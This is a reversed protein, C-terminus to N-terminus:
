NGSLPRNTYGRNLSTVSQFIRPLLLGSQRSNYCEATPAIQPALFDAPQFMLSHSCGRFSRWVSTATHTNGLASRSMAGPLGNDQPFFRTFAGYSCGPYPDKCASFSKYLYRRSPGVELLTQCCGAFVKHELIIGYAYPPNLITAHTRILSSPLTVGTSSTSSAKIHFTVGQAHLPARPVQYGKSYESLTLGLFM